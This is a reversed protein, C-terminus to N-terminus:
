LHSCLVTCPVHSLLTNHELFLVQYSVRKLKNSIVFRQSEFKERQVFNTETDEVWLAM